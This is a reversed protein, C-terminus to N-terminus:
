YLGLKQDEHAIASMMIQGIIKHPIEFLDQDGTLGWQTIDETTIIIEFSCPDIHKIKAYYKM